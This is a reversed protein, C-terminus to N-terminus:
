LNTHERIASFVLSLIGMGVISLLLTTLVARGRRPYRAEDPTSPGAVVAVYRSRGELEDKLRQVREEARVLHAAREELLVLRAQSVAAPAVETRAVAGSPRAAPAAVATVGATTSTLTSAELETARTKARALEREALDLSDKLARAGLENLRQETALLITELARRAVAGDFARFRVTLTSAAPDHNISLRKLFYEHARERSSPASLRSLWDIRPDEYHALLRIRRELIDLMERSQIFEKALLTEERALNSNSHKTLERLSAGESHHGSEPQPQVELGPADPGRREVVFICSSEYESTALFGFYIVSLL